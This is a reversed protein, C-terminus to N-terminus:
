SLKTSDFRIHIINFEHSCQTCRFYWSWWNVILFFHKHIVVTRQNSSLLESVTFQLSVRSTSDMWKWRRSDLRQRIVSATLTHVFYLPSQRTPSTEMINWLQWEKHPCVNPVIITITKNEQEAAVIFYIYSNINIRRQHLFNVFIPM